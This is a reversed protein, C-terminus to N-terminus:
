VVGLGCRGALFNGLNPICDLEYTVSSHLMQQTARSWVRDVDRSVFRSLLSQAKDRHRLPVCDARSVGLRALALEDGELIPTCRELRFNESHWCTESGLAYTAAIALGHPDFDVAVFFPLDPRSRRIASLLYRTPLDPYGRGTVLVVPGWTEVFGEECLRDFLTEKELILVCRAQTRVEITRHATASVAVGRPELLGGCNRWKCSGSELLELDGKM